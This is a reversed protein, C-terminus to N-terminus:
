YCHCKQNKLDSYAICLNQSIKHGSVKGLISKFSQLSKHIM